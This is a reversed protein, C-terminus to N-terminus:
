QKNKEGIWRDMPFSVQPTLFNLMIAFNTILLLKGYLFSCANCLFRILLKIALNRFNVFNHQM